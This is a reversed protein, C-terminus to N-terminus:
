SDSFLCLQSNSLPNQPSISGNATRLTAEGEDPETTSGYRLSPHEDLLKFVDDTNALYGHKDWVLSPLCAKVSDQLHWWRIRLSEWTPLSNLSSNLDCPIELITRLDRQSISYGYRSGAFIPEKLLVLSQPLCKQQHKPLAELFRFTMSIQIRYRVITSATSTHTSPKYLMPNLLQWSQTGKDEPYYSIITSGCGVTHNYRHVKPSDHLAQEYHLAMEKNADRYCSYEIAITETLSNLLSTSARSAGWWRQPYYPCEKDQIHKNKANGLYGCLYAAVSTHVEQAYAQLTGYRDRHCTGNSSEWLCVNSKESISDLLTTWKPKFATCIKERVRSDPCYVCYHFHLAGRKQLEWVYFYYDSKVTRKIWHGISEAIYSSYEAIARFAAPTNGPLTGTLFVFDSPNTSLTDYSGGM